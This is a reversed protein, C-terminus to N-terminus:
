WQNTDNFDLFWWGDSWELSVKRWGLPVQPYPYFPGIYPWASPSYQKPYTVASYNPYSAYGPWAYGPLNPTGSAIGGGMAAANAGPQCEPGACNAPAMGSATAFALPQNGRASVPMAQIRNQPMMQAPTAQHVPTVVNAQPAQAFQVQGTTQAPQQYAVQAAPVDTKPAAATTAPRIEIDDVVQTVGLHGAAQATQLILREQEPTSVFGSFWVAGNDVRMDVNFGSLNGNQQEAQLKAKVFDAIQQDNAMCVSPMLAAVAVAIGLMFVRM